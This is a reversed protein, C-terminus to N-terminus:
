LRTVDYSYIQFGIFGGFGNRGRYYSEIGEIWTVPAATVPQADFFPITLQSMDKKLDTPQFKIFM